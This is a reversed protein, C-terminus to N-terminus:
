GQTDTQESQQQNLNQSPTSAIPSNLDEVFVVEQAM